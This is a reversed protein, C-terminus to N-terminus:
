AHGTTRVAQYVFILLILYIFVQSGSYAFLGVKWGHGALFPVIVGLGLVIVRVLDWILLWGSKGLLNLVQAFPAGVFQAYAGLALIACAVGAEAWQDGLLLPVVIPGLVAIVLCPALALAAQVLATRRLTKALDRDRKTRVLTGVNGVIVQGVSQSVLSLPGVVLRIAMGVIGVVAAGYAFSMSLFLVQSGASNVLASLGASRASPWRKQHVEKIPANPRRLSNFIAPIWFGRGVIFAAALSAVSPYVAGIGAQLIPVLAQQTFNGVAIRNFRRFRSFTSVGLTTVSGALVMPGVLLWIRDAGTLYVFLVSVILAGSSTAAVCIIALRIAASFGEEEEEVQGIIEYRM